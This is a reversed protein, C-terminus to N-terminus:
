LQSGECGYDHARKVLFERRLYLHSFDEYAATRMAEVSADDIKEDLEALKEKFLECLNLPQMRLPAPEGEAHATRAFVGAFLCLTVALISLKM